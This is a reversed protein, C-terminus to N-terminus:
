RVIIELNHIQISDGELAKLLEEKVTESKLDLTLNHIKVRPKKKIIGRLENNEKLASNYHGRLVINASNKTALQEEMLKLEEKLKDNETLAEKEVFIREKFSEFGETNDTKNGELSVVKAALDFVKQKLEENEEELKENVKTFIDYEKKWETAEESAQKFDAFAHVYADHNKQNLERLSDLYYNLEEIVKNKEDSLNKTDELTKTLAVIYSAQEKVLNKM